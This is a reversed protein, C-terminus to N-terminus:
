LGALDRDVPDDLGVRTQGRAADLPGAVAALQPRVADTLEDVGLLDPHARGDSLQRPERGTVGALRPTIGFWVCSAGPGPDRRRTQVGPDASFTPSHGRQTRSRQEGLHPRPGPGPACSAGDRVRVRQLSQSHLMSGSNVRVAA